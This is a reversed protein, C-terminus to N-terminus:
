GQAWVLVVNCCRQACLESVALTRAPSNKNLLILAFRDPDCAWNSAAVAISNDATSKLRCSSNVSNSAASQHQSRPALPFLSVRRMLRFRPVNM